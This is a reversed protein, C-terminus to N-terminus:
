YVWPVFRRVRKTYDTYDPFKEKLWREELRAKADLIVCLLMSLILATLSRWCLAWGATVGMVSTYLPHRVLSYIGHRVLQSGDRPRPFPTLNRGLARAGTIGFIAGAMMLAIGAPKSWEGVWDCCRLPALILAALMVMNQAVVWAGGRANGSDKM